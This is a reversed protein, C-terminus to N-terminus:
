SIVIKINEKVGGESKNYITSAVGVSHNMQRALEGAGSSQYEKTIYIKRLLSINIKKNFAREFVRKVLQTFNNSTMKGGKENVFLYEQKRLLCVYIYMKLISRLAPNEIKVEEDEETTSKVLEKKFIFKVPKKFKTYILLNSDGDCKGTDLCLKMNAYDTRRPPHLIYLSQIVISRLDNYDTESIKKLSKLTNFKTAFTLIQAEVKNKLVEYPLLKDQEKESYTGQKTIQKYEENLAKIHNFYKEYVPTGKQLFLLLVNLYNRKKSYSFEKHEIVEEQIVLANDEIWGATIEDLKLHKLLTKYNATYTKISSPKLNKSELISKFNM